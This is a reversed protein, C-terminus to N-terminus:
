EGQSSSIAAEVRLPVSSNLNQRHSTHTGQITRHRAQPQILSDTPQLERRQKRRAPAGADQVAFSSPICKHVTRSSKSPPIISQPIKIRDKAAIPRVHFRSWRRTALPRKYGPQRHLLLISTTQPVQFSSSYQEHDNVQGDEYFIPSNRRLWFRPSAGAYHLGNEYVERVM